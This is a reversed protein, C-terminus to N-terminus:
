KTVKILDVVFVLTSNPPITSGSGSKGYALSPPIILERRGGVKMGVLGKVWGAIVSGTQLPFSTTTGPNDKWSADFVKGTKYLEGVYNVYVTDGTKAVAGTGTILDKTVLKTPAAGKPLKITPEKALPGSTPTPVSATTSTATTSTATVSSITTNTPGGGPALVVGGTKSSGGCAALGLVAAAAAVATMSAKLTM